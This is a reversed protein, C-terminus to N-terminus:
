PRTVPAAEHAFAQWKDGAQRWAIIAGERVGRISSQMIDCDLWTLIERWAVTGGVLIRIREQDIGTRQSLTASPASRLLGIARDLDNRGLTQSGELGSLLRAINTATGGVATIRDLPPMPAPINLRARAATALALVDAESPPDAPKVQDILVGSGLPLSTAWNIRSGIGVVLECSGGGLDGVAQPTSGAGFDSVAGWYTLAAEEMGSLLVIPTGLAQSFSALMEPANRAARVGETAMGLIVQAGNARAREAMAQLTQETRAAREPGIAGLVSVDAGLRLLDVQRDLITLDNVTSGLATVILHITNSGIDVAAIRNTSNNEREIAQM